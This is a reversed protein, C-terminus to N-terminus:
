LRHLWHRDGGFHHTQIGSMTLHSLTQWHSTAPWHKEGTEEVLLVSWWSLVSIDTANFLMFRVNKEYSHYHYM